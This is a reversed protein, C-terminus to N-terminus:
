IPGQKYYFFDGSMLVRRVLWLTLVIIFRAMNMLAAAMTDRSSSEEGEAETAATVRVMEPCCCRGELARSANKM